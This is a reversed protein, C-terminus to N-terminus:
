LSLSTLVDEELTFFGKYPLKLLLAKLFCQGRMNAGWLQSVQALTKSCLTCGYFAALQGLRNVSLANPLHSGTDLKM